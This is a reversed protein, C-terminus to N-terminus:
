KTMGRGKEITITYVQANDLSNGLIELITAKSGIVKQIDKPKNFM